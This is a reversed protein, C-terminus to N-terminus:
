RIWLLKRKHKTKLCHKCYYYELEYCQGIHSETEKKSLVYNHNCMGLKGLLWKIM